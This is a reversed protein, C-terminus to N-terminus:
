RTWEDNEWGDLCGHDNNNMVDDLPEFADCVIPYNYIIAHHSVIELSASINIWCYCSM